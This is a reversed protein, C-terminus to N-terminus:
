KSTDNESESDSDVPLATLKFLHNQPNIARQANSDVVYRAMNEM